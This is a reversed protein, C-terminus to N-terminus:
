KLFLRVNIGDKTRQINPIRRQLLTICNSITKSEWHPYMKELFQRNIHQGQLMKEHLEAAIDNWKIGTSGAKISISIAPNLKRALESIEAGIRSLQQSTESLQTKTIRLRDNEKILDKLKSILDAENEM